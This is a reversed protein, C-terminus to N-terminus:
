RRPKAARSALVAAATQLFARRQMPQERPSRFHFSRGRYRHVALNAVLHLRQRGMAIFSITVYFGLEMLAHTSYEERL